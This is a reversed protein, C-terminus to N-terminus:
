FYSKNKVRYLLGRVGESKNDLSEMPTPTPVMSIQLPIFLKGYVPKIGLFPSPRFSRKNM